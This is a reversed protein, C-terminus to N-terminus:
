VPVRAAHPILPINLNQLSECLPILDRMFLTGSLTM